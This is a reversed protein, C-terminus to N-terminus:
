WAEVVRQLIGDMRQRIKRTEEAVKENTMRRYFKVSSINAHGLLRAITFDDVHMETLKRGYTHRFLQTKVGFLEGNDDRLNNENIVAALQYKIKEYSMPRKEDADHCFVYPSDPAYSRTYEIAANILKVMDKNITKRYSRRSKVQDIRILIKGDQEFVCDQKLTLTDSIRTGLMQQLILARAVQVDATVIARNLRMLEEDSYSIYLKEPNKPIDSILFLGPMEGKDSMRRALDVITKMHFIDSRYSKRSTAETGLYVLYSEIIERNIETISEVKPFEVKLYDCFRNMATIEAVVTGVANTQLEMFAADKIERRMKPQSIKEFNLTKTNKIPNDKLILGLRSLDWIDKEREPREDAPMCFRYVMRLYRIHPSEQQKETGLRTSRKCATLPKGNKLLWKRLRKELEPWPIELLNEMKPYCETLFASVVHYETLDSRITTAKKETGRQWILDYFVQQLGKTPLTDLRFCRNRNKYALSGEQIEGTKYCPLDGLKIELEM